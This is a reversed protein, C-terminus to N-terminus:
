AGSKVHDAFFEKILSIAKNRYEDDEILLEHYGGEIPVLQCRGPHNANLKDRFENQGKATVAVDETAQLLLVDLEIDGARARARDSAELAQRVWGYSAGGVRTDRHRTFMDRVRQYRVPSHTMAEDKATSPNFTKQNYPGGKGAYKIAEGKLARIDALTKVASGPLLGVDPQHMPSCLAAARFVNRHQQIYRTAICGGMSHALLLLQRDGAPQGDLVVETVFQHLDDVYFIFNAVHGPGHGIVPDKGQETTAGSFGQGRHDHIYVSYGEQYFDYITEDYKFMCETRGSSIVIAGKEDRRKFTRYKIKVPADQPHRSVFEGSKGREWLDKIAAEKAADLPAPFATSDVQVTAAPRTEKKRNDKQASAEGVIFVSCLITAFLRANM